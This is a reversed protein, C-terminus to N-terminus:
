PISEAMRLLDEVPAGPSMLQYMVDGKMWSLTLNTNRDWQGTDANWTGGVVAAPQGNVEVEQVDDTEVLWDVPQGITLDINGVQPDSGYWTIVVPTYRAGFYSIRVASGRTFGDPAWTPLHIEFPLRAQAETLSLIEEPVLTVQSEPLPTAQSSAEDPEFFTMGGIEVVLGNFAALATPSFALAAILAMGLAAAFTLRRISLTRKTNMPVNIRKHLAESFERPPPKRHRTLFDDNM